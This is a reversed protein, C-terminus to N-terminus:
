WMSLHCLIIVFLLSSLPYSSLLFSFFFLSSFFLFSFQLFSFFLSSFYLSSFLLFSFFFFSFFHSSFFVFIGRVRSTFRKSNPTSGGVPGSNPFGMLAPRQTKRVPRDGCGGGYGLPEEVEGEEQVTKSRLRNLEDRRAKCEVATKGHALPCGSVAFHMAYLGTIHGMGDCGGTPCKNGKSAEVLTYPIRKKKKKKTPVPQIGLVPSSFYTSSSSPMFTPDSLSEETKIEGPALKRRKIPAIGLVEENQSSLEDRSYGALDLKKRKLPKREKDSDDSRSSRLQRPSYANYDSSPSGESDDSSDSINERLGSAVGVRLAAPIM